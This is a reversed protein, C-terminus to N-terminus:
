PSLPWVRKPLRSALAAPSPCLSWASSPPSAVAGFCLVLESLPRLRLRRSPRQVPCVSVSCVSLCLGTCARLLLACIPKLGSDPATMRCQLGLQPSLKQGPASPCHVYTRLVEVGNATTFDRRQGGSLRGLGPPRLCRGAPTAECALSLRRAVDHSAERASQPCLLALNAGCLGPLSCM